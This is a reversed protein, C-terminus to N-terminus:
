EISLLHLPIRLWRREHRPRQMDNTTSISAHPLIAAQIASGPHGREAVFIHNIRGHDTLLSKLGFSFDAGEQPCRLFALLRLVPPIANALVEGKEVWKM